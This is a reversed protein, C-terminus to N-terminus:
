AVIASCTETKYRTTHSRQRLRASNIDLHVPARIGNTTTIFGRRLTEEKRCVIKNKNAVSRSTTGKSGQPPKCTSPCTETDTANPRVRSRWQKHVLKNSTCQSRHLPAAHCKGRGCWGRRRVAKAYSQGHMLSPQKQKM